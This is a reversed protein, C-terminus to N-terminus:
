DEDEDEEDEDIEEDEVEDEDEDEVPEVEVPASKKTKAMVEKVKKTAAEAGEAEHKQIEEIIAIVKAYDETGPTFEYKKKPGFGESDPIAPASFGAKRLKMRLVRGEIGFQEALQAITVPAANKIAKVAETATKKAM